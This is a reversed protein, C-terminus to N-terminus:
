VLGSQGATVNVRLFRDTFRQFNTAKLDDLAQQFEDFTFKRNGWMEWTLGGGKSSNIHFVLGDFPFQEMDAIHERMFKTDPEDWGWEILKKGQPLDNSRAPSTLGLLLCTLIGPLWLRLMTPEEM